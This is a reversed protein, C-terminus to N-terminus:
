EGGKKAAEPPPALAALTACANAEANRGALRMVAAMKGLIEPDREDVLGYLAEELRRAREESAALKQAWRAEHCACGAYHSDGSRGRERKM